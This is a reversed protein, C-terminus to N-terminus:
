TENQRSKVDAKQVGKALVKIAWVVKNCALLVICTCLTTSLITLSRVNLGRCQEDLLSLLGIPKM